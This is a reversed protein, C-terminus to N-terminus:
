CCVFGGGGGGWDGHPSAKGVAGGGGGWDGPTCGCTSSHGHVEADKRAGGCDGHPSAKSVAGGLGGGWDGTTSPGHM